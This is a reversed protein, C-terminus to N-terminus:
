IHLDLFAVPVVDICQQCTVKTCHDHSDVLFHCWTHWGGLTSRINSQKSYAAPCDRDDVTGDGGGGGGFWYEAYGVYHMVVGMM